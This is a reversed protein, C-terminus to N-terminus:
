EICVELHGKNIAADTIGGGLQFILHHNEDFYVCPLSSSGSGQNEKLVQALDELFKDFCGQEPQPFSYGPENPNAGFTTIGTLVMNTAVISGDPMVGNVGVLVKSAKIDIIEEPIKATNDSEIVVPLMKKFGSPTVIACFALKVASSWLVTEDDFHFLLKISDKNGTPLETTKILSAKRGSVKIEICNHM